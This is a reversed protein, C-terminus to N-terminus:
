RSHSHTVELYYGFVNNFSVKLSPIGTLEAERKQIELLYGKGGFPSKVCGTLNKM